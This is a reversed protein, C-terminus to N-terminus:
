KEMHLQKVAHCLKRSTEAPIGARELRAAVECSLQEIETLRGARVDQLMSCTNDSTKAVVDSAAAVIEAASVNVGELAAAQSVEMSISRWLSDTNPLSPLEGNRAGALTAVPNICCNVGIKLWIARRIDGSVKCNLGATRFLAHLVNSHIGKGWPGLELEGEGRIVLEDYAIREVGYTSLAAYIRDSGFITSLRECNGLGNQVTIVASPNLRHLVHEANGHSYSKYAVVLIDCESM